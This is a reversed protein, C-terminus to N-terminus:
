AALLTCLDRAVSKKKATSRTLYWDVMKDWVEGSGETLEAYQSLAEAVAQPPVLQEVLSSLFFFARRQIKVQVQSSYVDGSDVAGYDSLIDELILAGGEKVFTQTNVESTRCLCSCAHLAAALASDMKLSKIESLLPLLVTNWKAAAFAVQVNENLQSSHAVILLLGEVVEENAPECQTNGIVALLRSPGNILTFEAAWNIDEVLDSLEEIADIYSAENAGSEVASLLRVVKKELPEISEMANKLWQYDKEDRKQAPSSSPQSSQAAQCMKLVASSVSDHTQM